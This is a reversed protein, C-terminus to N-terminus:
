NGSTGLHFVWVTDGSLDFVIYKAIRTIADIM